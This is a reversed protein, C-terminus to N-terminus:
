WSRIKFGTESFQSPRYVPLSCSNKLLITSGMINVLISKKEYFFPYLLTVQCKVAIGNSFAQFCVLGAVHIYCNDNPRLDCTTASMPFLDKRERVSVTQDKGM